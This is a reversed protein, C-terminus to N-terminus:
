IVMIAGSPDSVEVRAPIGIDERVWMKTQVKNQPDQTIIVRCKVGEYVTTEQTKLKGADLDKTYRDPTDVAKGRDLPIKLATGTAPNVSYAVNTDMRPHLWTIM